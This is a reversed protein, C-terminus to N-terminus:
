KAKHGSGSVQNGAHVTNGRILAGASMIEVMSTGQRENSM